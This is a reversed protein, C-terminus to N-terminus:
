AQLAPRPPRKQFFNGGLLLGVWILGSLLSIWLGVVFGPPEYRMVIQHKGPGVRVARMFFNATLIPTEQGNDWARWGPLHQDALVVYGSTNTELELALHNNKDVKFHPGQWRKERAERAPVQAKAQKLAQDDNLLVRSRFDIGSQSQPEALLAPIVKPDKIAMSQYQFRARPLAEKNEYLTLQLEPYTQRQLYHGSRSYYETTKADPTLVLVYRVALLSEYVQKFPAKNLALAELYLRNMVQGKHGLAATEGYANRFGWALNFNNQLSAHHFTNFRLEPRDQWQPAFTPPVVVRPAASLLMRAQSNQALRQKLLYQAPKSATEFLAASPALPLAALGNLLLDLGIGALLLGLGWAQIAPRKGWFYSWCSIGLALLAAALLQGRLHSLNAAVQAHLALLGGLLLLGLGLSWQWLHRLFAPTELFAQFVFGTALCLGLSVFVLLKSPYRFFGMGPLGLLFTYLPFYKGWAMMLLLLTLLGFFGLYVRQPIQYFLKLGAGLLLFPFLGLYGNIFFPMMAYLPEGWYQHLSVGKVTLNLYDPLLLLLSLFPHYSWVMSWEGLGEARVTEPLHALAPLWQLASL